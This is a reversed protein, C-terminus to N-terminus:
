NLLSASGILAAEEGFESQLLKPSSPQKALEEELPKVFLEWAKAINGGIIVVDANHQIALAGLFERLTEGFENFLQKAHPDTDINEKLYKSGEITKGTLEKYRNVFWRTSISDEAIGGKYPACWLNGDESVGDFVFASGFGTGLTVGIARKLTSDNRGFVEGLLFCEADNKFRINDPAFGTLKALEERVSMQYLSLFKNQSPDNILCIGNPYDFPGPMAMGLGVISERSVKEDSEAAKKISAEIAKDWASLIEDATGQANVDNRFISDKVIKADTLNVVATTIHGGGIDAGVAYKKM